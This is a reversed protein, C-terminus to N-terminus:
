QEKGFLYVRILLFRGDLGLVKDLQSGAADQCPPQSLSWHLLKYVSVTVTFVTEPLVPWVVKLGTVETSASPSLKDEMDLVSSHSNSCEPRSCMREKAPGTSGGSSLVLLVKSGNGSVCKELLWSSICTSWKSSILLQWMGTVATSSDTQPLFSAGPERSHTLIDLHSLATFKRHLQGESSRSM